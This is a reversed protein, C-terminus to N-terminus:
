LLMLKVYQLLKSVLGNCVSFIAKHEQNENLFGSYFCHKPSGSYIKEKEKTDGLIRLGYNPALFDQFPTLHFALKEGFAFVSYNAVSHELVDDQIQNELDRLNKEHYQRLTVDDFTITGKTVDNPLTRNKSNPSKYYISDMATKRLGRKRYKKSYEKIKVRKRFHRGHSVPTGTVHHLRIPVVLQSDEFGNLFSDAFFDDILM